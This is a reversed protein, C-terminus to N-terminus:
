KKRVTRDRYYTKMAMCYRLSLLSPIFRRGIARAITARTGHWLNRDSTLESELVHTQSLLGPRHTILSSPLTLTVTLCSVERDGTRVLFSFVFRIRSISVHLKGARRIEPLRMRHSIRSDYIARLLSKLFHCRGSRSSPWPPPPPHPVAHRM